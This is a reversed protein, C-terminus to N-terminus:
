PKSADDLWAIFHKVRLACRDVDPEDLLLRQGDLRLKAAQLKQILKPDVQGRRLQSRTVKGIGHAIINRATIFGNLESWPKYEWKVDFLQRWASQRGPWDRVARPLREEWIRLVLEGPPLDNEVRDVLHEAAFMEAVAVLRFIADHALDRMEPSAPPLGACRARFDALIENAHYTSDEARASPIDVLRLM